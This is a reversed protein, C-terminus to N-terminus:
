ILSLIIRLSSMIMFNGKSNKLNFSIIPGYDTLISGNIERRYIEVLSHGNFHKLDKLRNILYETLDNLYLGILKFGNGFTLKQFHDIALGTSIIELYPLTGDEFAEHFHYNRAIRSGNEGERCTFNKVVVRDSDILAMEVTGGGFYRKATLHDKVRETKRILLAGLSTPFGFLKYFSLVIFDPRTQDSKLSLPSTSMYSSADLCVFWEGESSKLGDLTKSQVQDILDLNYRRGNFNSQAPFIFLNKKFEKRALINFM